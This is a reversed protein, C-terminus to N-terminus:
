GEHVLDFSESFSLNPHETTIRVLYGYLGTHTLHFQGSFVVNNDHKPNEVPTLTSSYRLKFNDGLDVPGHLLKVRLENPSRGATNVIVNVKLQKGKIPTEDTSVQVDMIAIKNWNERITKKWQVMNKLGAFHDAKLERYNRAAPVYCTEVYESVM